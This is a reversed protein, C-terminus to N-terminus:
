SRDNAIESMERAIARLEKAVEKYLRELEPLERFRAGGLRQDESSIRCIYEELRMKVAAGSRKPSGHRPM